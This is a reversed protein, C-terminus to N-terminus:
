VPEQPNDTMPCLPRSNLCAEIRALITSLEEFTYKFAQAQKRFHLKFSKVGAEWLGGMHPAGAPIFRWSVGQVGYSSCILSQSEKLFSKFGKKLQRSAGVFNTGNDSFITNPCGRRSIFRQFAAMFNPTSLDSTAELHITDPKMVPHHPLYCSHLTTSSVPRMHDLDLYERVVDDYTEKIEPKRELSSENRLYQGM